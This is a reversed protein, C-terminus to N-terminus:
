PLTLMGQHRACFEPRSLQANLMEQQRHANFLRCNPDNCFAEGKFYYAISQLIYGIIVDTLRPDHYELFQGAFKEKVLEDPIDQGMGLYARQMFYYEMPRAPAEVLGSSSILSLQGGLITRAHYRREGEDKTVFLRPTLFIHLHRVSAETKFIRFKLIELLRWGDYVIQPSITEPRQYASQEYIRRQEEGQGEKGSLEWNWANSLNNILEPSLYHSIFNDRVEIDAFPCITKIHKVIGELDIDGAPIENYFYIMQSKQNFVRM